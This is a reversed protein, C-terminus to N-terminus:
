PADIVRSERVLAAAGSPFQLGSHGAGANVDRWFRQLDESDSQGRSGSSRLLRDVAGALTEAALACDRGNRATLLPDVPGRDVVAAVRELLLAATDIEGDSRALTLEYPTRDATGTIAAGPGQLKARVLASWHRLAGRAAGLLPAALTLGNAAKMPVRHCAAEAEPAEGRLLDALAVSHTDPVTTEDLTLTNSGTARLGVNFWSDTVGYAERPVAFFRPHRRDGDTARACVLAWTSFGVGSVYPWQGRVRWGGPVREASGSAALAGVVLTDPGDRWIDRQGEPPLYAALRGVGAALSAFWATSACSEGLLAVSPLLAGFTGATGGWRAPVFHRAFGAAVVLDVVDPSLRRDAEAEAAHKAASAVAERVADSPSPTLHTPPM